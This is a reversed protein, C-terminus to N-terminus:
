PCPRWFILKAFLPDSHTSTDLAMLQAMKWVRRKRIKKVLTGANGDQTWVDSTNYEEDPVMKWHSNLEITSLVGHEGNIFPNARPDIVEDYEKIFEEQPFTLDLTAYALTSFNM